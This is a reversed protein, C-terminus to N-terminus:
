ARAMGAKAKKPAAKAHDASGSMLVAVPQLPGVNECIIKISSMIPVSLIM